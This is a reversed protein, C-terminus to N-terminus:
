AGRASSGREHDTVFDKCDCPRTGHRSCLTACHKEFEYKVLIPRRGGEEYDVWVNHTFKSPESPTERVYVKPNILTSAM